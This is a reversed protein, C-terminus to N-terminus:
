GMACTLFPESTFDNNDEHCENYHGHGTGDDDVTAEVAFSDVAAWGAEPSWELPIRESNGPLLRVTTTVVLTDLVEGDGNTITLSVPIGPSVGLAGDNRVIVTLRADGSGLCEEHLIDEIVLDPADFLGAPQVNQRFNNLRGNQWNEEEDRPIQGEENVNTVHYSHQNWIRRTRVWNNAEDEWVEIGGYASNRNPEPVIVESQGDNDVDVIIPMEMRTNSSHTDDEFLIAGTLGDFIRFTVEDAYVVEARGDGEFDFVSSGTVRSSCDQNHVTWLVNEDECEEPLPDGVCDFDIVAYFDASATGIEPNGDGDFDAVTPPGSENAELLEGSVTKYCDEWPIPVRHLLTGDHNIVFVEGLRVIVVEGEPDDDFNAVANFGDCPENGQCYSNDTVYDFSWEEIGTPGDYVTHGAIVEPIGDLDVDAVTSNPGLFANNGVGADPGVTVLGDWRLGGTMGDLVVNGIIVEPAGDGELDAIQPQAGAGPTHDATIYSNNRWLIEWDSGDDSTRTWAVTGSGRFTAVIEAPTEDLATDPHLNGLAIGSSAGVWPDGRGLTAITTMTGDDNCAGSVVRVVGHNTCCGETNKDYSVFVIDPIDLTDTAGDGNDDTLNAVSPTMECESYGEFEGAPPTWRCALVPTFEGVPPRYECVEVVDRSVCRGLTPECLEDVPCQETRECAEGMLVCEAGLCAEDTGCCLDRDDGCLNAPDACEAVCAGEHCMQGEACCLENSSGCLNAPDACEVVCSGEHCMQGSRCCLEGCPELDGCDNVCSGDRCVNGPDCCFGGCDREIPCDGDADGDADGDGGDPLDVCEGDLCHLGPDCDDLSICSSGVEGPRPRSESCGAAALLAAIGVASLVRTWEIVNRKEARWSTEPARMTRATERTRCPHEGAMERLESLDNNCIEYGTM